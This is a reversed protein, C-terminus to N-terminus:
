SCSKSKGSKTNYSLTREKQKHRPTNKTEKRDNLFGMSPLGCEAPYIALKSGSKAISGGQIDEEYRHDMSGAKSQEWGGVPVCQAHRSDMEVCVNGTRQTVNTEMGKMNVTVLAARNSIM